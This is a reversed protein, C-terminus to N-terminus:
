ATPQRREVVKKLGSLMREWNARSNEAEEASANNDQSLRIRTGHGAEELEYVVTHYNDPHDQKGSTPSFHTLRLRRPPDVELIKGHDEYHKGDYEGKWVIDGGEEWSSEVHSGFMYQEIEDPDTLARWVDDPSANIEAEAVAIKGGSMLEEM